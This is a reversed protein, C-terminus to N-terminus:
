LRVKHRIRKQFEDLTVPVGGTLGDIAHELTTYVERVIVLEFADGRDRPVFDVLLWVIDANSVDRAQQMEGMSSFFPEDVVVAMKKGWRRLTPVKIQLQPMLRKPGSSRYDPRRNELPMAARGANQALNEFEIGMERGSFYVAQVEVAIWEMPHDPPANSKVLIMDIRGVDEGSDSDLNGTSELFGVEGVTFPRDDALLNKGIHKFVVDQQHFRFPCLARIQGRRGSVPTIQGEDDTYLRLSCVGGKKTCVPNATDTKFPCLKERENQRQLLDSLQALRVAEKPKLDRESALQSLTSLRRAALKSMKASGVKHAAFELREDDTLELFPRGYWEAIHFSEALSSAKVFSFQCACLIAASGVYMGTSAAPLLAM